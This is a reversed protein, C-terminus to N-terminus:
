IDCSNKDTEAHRLAPPVSSWLNPVSYDTQQTRVSSSGSVVLIPVATM